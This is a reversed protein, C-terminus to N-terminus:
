IKVMSATNRRLMCRNTPDMKAAQSRFVSSWSANYRHRATPSVTYSKFPGPISGWVEALDKVVVSSPRYGTNDSIVYVKVACSLDGQMNFVVHLRVNNKTRDMTEEISNRLMPLSIHSWLYAVFILRNSKARQWLESM